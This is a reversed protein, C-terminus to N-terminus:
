GVTVLEQLRAPAPPPPPTISREAIVAQWALNLYAYDQDALDDDLGPNCQFGYHWPMRNAGPASSLDILHARTLGSRFDGHLQGLVCCAGSRLELTVPDLRDNWGPDVTDLYTAGRRARTLAHDYTIRRARRATRRRHWWSLLAMFRLPLATLIL